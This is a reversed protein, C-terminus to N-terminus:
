GERSVKYQALDEYGLLKVILGLALLAEGTATGPIPAGKEELIEFGREIHLLVSRIDDMSNSQVGLSIRQNKKDYLPAYENDRTM